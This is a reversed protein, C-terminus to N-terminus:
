AYKKESELAAVAWLSFRAAAPWHIATSDFGPRPLEAPDLSLCVETFGLIVSDAGLAAAGSLPAEPARKGAMDICFRTQGVM